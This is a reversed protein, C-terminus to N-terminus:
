KNQIKLNGGCPITGALWSNTPLYCKCETEGHQQLNALDCRTRETQLDHTHVIVKSKWNLTRCVCFYGQLTTTSVPIQLYTLPSYCFQFNSMCTYHAVVSYTCIRYDPFGIIPVLTTVQELELLRGFMCLMICAHVTHCKIGNHYM